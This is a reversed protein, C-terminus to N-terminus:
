PAVWRSLQPVMVDLRSLITSYFSQARQDQAQSTMATRGRITQLRTTSYMISLMPILALHHAARSVPLHSMGCISRLPRIYSTTLFSHALRAHIMTIRSVIRMPEPIIRYG